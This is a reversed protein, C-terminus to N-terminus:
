HFIPLNMAEGIDKVGFVKIGKIKKIESNVNSAPIIVTEFGLKSAESVRQECMSVARVEGSLGVEGIIVTKEDIYKNRFSSTVALSLALDLAPENMKLGGAINVYADCDGIQIGGRKELVAMLLNVRNIDMGTTQRRPIGFNSKSILAQIELMVPRTGEIACTIVSGSAKEARGSLM